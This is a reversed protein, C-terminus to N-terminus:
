AVALVARLLAAGSPSLSWGLAGCNLIVTLRFTSQFSPKSSKHRLLRQAALAGPWGGILALLHLTSERTRRQDRQAASKDLAYAIFAIVSALLYLGVVALPLRGAIVLGALMALFTLAIIPAANSRGAASAPAVREGAFAVHVAQVRGSADTKREYTVSDNDAPRRHRSAFSKIHVFVPQGGGDPSIFGFGQADKWRSIKGQYRMYAKRATITSPVAM